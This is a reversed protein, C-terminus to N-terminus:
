NRIEGINFCIFAYKSNRNFLCEYQLFYFSIFFQVSMYKNRYQFSEIYWFISMVIHHRKINASQHCNDIFPQFLITFIEDLM